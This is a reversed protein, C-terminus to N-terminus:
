TGARALLVLPHVPRRPYWRQELLQLLVPTPTDEIREWQPTWVPESDRAEDYGPHKWAGDGHERLFTDFTPHSVEFYYAVRGSKDACPTPSWNSNRPGTIDAVVHPQNIRARVYALDDASLGAAESIKHRLTSLLRRRKPSRKSM